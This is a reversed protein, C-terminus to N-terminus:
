PYKTISPQRDVCYAARRPLVGLIKEAVIRDRERKCVAVSPMEIQVAYVGGKVDNSFVVVLVAALTNLM